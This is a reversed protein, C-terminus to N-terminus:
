GYRTYSLYRGHMGNLLDFDELFVKECHETLIFSKVTELVSQNAGLSAM